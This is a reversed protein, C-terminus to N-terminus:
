VPKRMSPSPLMFWSPEWMLTGAPNVARGRGNKIEELALDFTYIEVNPGNLQLSAAFRAKQYLREFIGADAVPGVNITKLIGPRGTETDRTTYVDEM